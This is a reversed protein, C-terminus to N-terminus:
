LPANDQAQTCLLAGIRTPALPPRPTAADWGFYTQAAAGCLRGQCPGMGCRTHLKADRWTAHPSVDGFPVDEKKKNDHDKLHIAYNREGMTRIQEAPDLKERRDRLYAGLLNDPADAM